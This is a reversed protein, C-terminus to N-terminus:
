KEENNKLGFKKTNFQFYQVSQRMVRGAPHHFGPIGSPFIGFRGLASLWSSTRGTLPSSFFM